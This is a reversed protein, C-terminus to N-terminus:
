RRKLKRDALRGTLAAKVSAYTKKGLALRIPAPTRTALQLIADVTKYPNGTIVFAGSDIAKRVTGAPTEDYVDM